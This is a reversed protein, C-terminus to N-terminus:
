HNERETKKEKKIKLIVAISNFRSIMEVIGIFKNDNYIPIITKFTMDFRGTSIRNMPKPDKLMQAIDVRVSSINDGTKTTWSRYFSDGNKDIIQIWINKFESVTKLGNIIKTFNVLRKDNQILAENIHNDQSLVYTLASTDGQKKIILRKLENKLEISKELFIEKKM